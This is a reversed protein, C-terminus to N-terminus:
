VSLLYKKIPFIPTGFNILLGTEIRSRHALANEYVSELHGHRLYRHVALGTVRVVDCLENISTGQM